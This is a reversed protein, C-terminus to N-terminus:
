FTERSVSINFNLTGDRGLTETAFIGPSDSFTDLFSRLKSIFREAAPKDESILSSIYAEAASVNMGSSVIHCLATHRQGPDRIRLLTRCHRETLESDLIAEREERTFALLRLKNAVYSQSRGLVAAVSEQSYLHKSTLLKLQEAFEFFSLVDRELRRFIMDDEFILPTPYSVCPVSAYGLARSADYRKAGDAIRGEGDVMLPRLFGHTALSESFLKAREKEPPRRLPTTLNDIDIYQILSKYYGSYIPTAGHKGANYNKASVPIM